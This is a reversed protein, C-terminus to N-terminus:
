KVGVPRKFFRASVAKEADTSTEGLSKNAVSGVIYQVEAIVDVQDEFTKLDMVRPPQDDDKYIEVQDIDVVLRRVILRRNAVMVYIRGDIIRSAQNDREAFAGPACIFLQANECGDLPLRGQPRIVVNGKFNGSNVSSRISEIEGLVRSDLVQGVASDIFSMRIIDIGADVLLSNDVRRGGYFVADLSIKAELCYEIIAKLPLDGRGIRTYLAGESMSLAAALDKRSSVGEVKAALRDLVEENRQKRKLDEDDSTTQKAM